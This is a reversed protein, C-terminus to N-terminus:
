MCTDWAHAGVPGSGAASCEVRPPASEEFGWAHCSLMGQSCEGDPPRQVGAEYCCVIVSSSDAADLLSRRSANLTSNCEFEVQLLGGGDVDSAASSSSNQPMDEGMSADVGM